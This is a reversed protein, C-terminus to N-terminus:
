PNLTITVDKITGGGTRDQNDMKGFYVGFGLEVPKSFDFLNYNPLAVNALELDGNYITIYGDKYTFTLTVPTNATAFMNKNNGGYIQGQEVGNVVTALSWTHRNAILLTNNGQRIAFNMLSQDYTARGVDATFTATAAFSTGTEGTWAYYTGDPFESNNPVDYVGTSADYTIGKTEATVTINEVTGGGDRVQNDVSGLFVGFGLEVPESYNFLNYNPLAVNALELEGNYITIYGNEYTLNLTVPTNATAFMNKNNGGYIQGQEVGNVVTSLSWTHRNTILLTNNGQRIAFNILSRDYTDRGVDATFTATATFSNGTKGTWEFYAGNDIGDATGKVTYSGDANKVIALSGVDVYAVNSITGGGSRVKGDMTGLFNGFGVEVPQTWDFAANLTANGTLDTTTLTEGSAVNVISVIGNKYTMKLTVAEGATLYMNLNNGSGIQNIDVGNLVGSTQWKHKYAILLENDGQKIAFGFGTANYLESSDAASAPTDPTFTATVEFDNGSNGTWAYYTGNEVETSNLADYVGTDANYTIGTVQPAETATVNITVNSITGGATFDRDATAGLHTGFGIEVPQTVDFGAGCSAVSWDNKSMETWTAGNDTSGYFDMNGNTYVLKVHVPTNATAFWTRLDNASCCNNYGMYTGNAVCSILWAHHYTFLLTNDGQKLAFGLGFRSYADPMVEEPTIVATVEFSTGTEGTWAFYTGNEVETSNRINYVGASADYTIPQLIEKEVIECGAAYLADMFVDNYASDVPHIDDKLEFEYGSIDVFTIWGSQAECWDYMLGNLEYCAAETTDNIYSGRRPTVGFVYINTNPMEAHLKEYLRVIIAQVQEASLGDNFIDNNGINFVLNKPAIGDLFLGYDLYKEWDEATSGGIGAIMAEKGALDTEFNTWYGIDFFSDGVFLTTVGDKGNEAYDAANAKAASSQYWDWEKVASTSLVGNNATVHFLVPHPTAGENPAHLVLMDESSNSEFIMGHGGNDDYLNFSANQLNLSEGLTTFRTAAEIYNGDVKTSWLLYKQGEADTYVFPGDTVKANSGSQWWSINTFEEAEFWQTYSGVTTKLNSSLQIYDVSGMNDNCNNCQWEHAFILYPTGNDVYLTADLCSHGAPTIAGESWPEFPGTPSSSKLIASAQQDNTGTQTFTALMYYEGNYEHVEPAWYAQESNTTDNGWFDDGGEFCKGVYNWIELDTSSYVNFYGFNQTGYLYYTGNDNLIFPDRIAIDGLSFGYGSAEVQVNSITMPCADVTNICLQYATNAAFGGYLSNTLNFSWALQMNCDGKTCNSNGFYAKLVDNEVVIKYDLTAANHGSEKWYFSCAAQNFTVDSNGSQKTDAWNWYRQLAVSDEYICFWANRGDPAKVGFSLYLNNAINDKTITGSMEWRRAFAGSDNSAIFAIETNAAATDSYDYRITGAEVDATVTANATTTAEIAFKNAENAAGYAIAANSYLYMSKLLANLGTAAETNRGLALYAYSLVSYNCEFTTAGEANVVKINYLKGWNQPLIEPIAYVVQTDVTSVEVDTGDIYLTSGDFAEANFKVRLDCADDLYLATVPKLAANYTLITHKYAELNSQTVADVTADTITEGAAYAAAFDGYNGLDAVLDALEANSPKSASLDSLYSAVTWDTKTQVAVGEGNLLEVKIAEPLRHAPLKATYVYLGDEVTPETIVQSTADSGITVRVSYGTMDAGNADVKFNVDLIGNLTMNVKTIQPTATATEASAMVPLMGLVMVVVLLMSLLKKM